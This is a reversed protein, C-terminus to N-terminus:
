ISSSDRDAVDIPFLTPSFVKQSVCTSLESGACL